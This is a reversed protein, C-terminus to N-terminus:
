PGVEFAAVPTWNRKRRAIRGATDEADFDHPVAPFDLAPGDKFTNANVTFWSENGDELLAGIYAADPQASKLQHSNFDCYPCKRVCWPMHVYLALSPDVLATAAHAEIM